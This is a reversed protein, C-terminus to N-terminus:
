CLIEIKIHTMITKIGSINCNPLSDTKITKCEKKLYVDSNLDLINKLSLFKVM